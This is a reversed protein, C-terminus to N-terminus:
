LEGRVAYYSAMPNAGNRKAVQTGISQTLTPCIVPRIKKSKRSM